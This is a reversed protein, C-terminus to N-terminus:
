EFLVVGNETIVTVLVRKRFEEFIVTNVDTIIKYKTEDKSEDIYGKIKTKIVKSKVSNAYTIWIIETKTIRMEVDCPIHQVKDNDNLYYMKSFFFTASQQAKTNLSLFLAVAFTLLLKM